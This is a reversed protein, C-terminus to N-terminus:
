WAANTLPTAHFRTLRAMTSTSICRMRRVSRADATLAAPDAFGYHFLIEPYSAPERPLDPATSRVMPAQVFAFAERTLVDSALRTDLAFSVDHGRGRLAKALALLPTIHGLNGGLEWVLLIRSM